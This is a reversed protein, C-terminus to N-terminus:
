SQRQKLVGQVNNATIQNAPSFKSHSQDSGVYPWEIMTDTQAYTTSFTLFVIFAAIYGRKM